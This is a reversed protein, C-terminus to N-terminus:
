SATPARAQELLMSVMAASASMGLQEHIALAERVAEISGVGQGAYM